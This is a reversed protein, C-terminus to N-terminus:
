PRPDLSSVLHKEIARIMRGIEDARLFLARAQQESTYGLRPLLMLQTEAEALSGRAISLFRLYEKRSRRQHGEAINSPISVAARQLQHGLGFRESSPLQRTLDYVHVVLDMAKQWVVLERYHRVHM